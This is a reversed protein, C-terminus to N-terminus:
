GPVQVWRGRGGPVVAAVAIHGQQDSAESISTGGSTSTGRRSGQHKKRKSQSVKGSLPVALPERGEQSGRRGPRDRSSYRKDGLQGRTFGIGDSVLGALQWWSSRHPHGVHGSVKSYAMGVGSYLAVVVAVFLIFEGGWAVPCGVLKPSGDKFTGSASGCPCRIHHQYGTATAWPCMEDSTVKACAGPSSKLYCDHFESGWSLANCTPSGTCLAKCGQLDVIGSCELSQGPCHDGPPPLVSAGEGDGPLGCPALEPGPFAWGCSSVAAGVCVVMLNVFAPESRGALLAACLLRLLDV